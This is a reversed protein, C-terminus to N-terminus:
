EEAPPTAMETDETARSRTGYDGNKNSLATGITRMNRGRRGPTTPAKKDSTMASVAIEAIACSGDGAGGAGCGSGIGPVGGACVGDAGGSPPSLAVGTMLGYSLTM